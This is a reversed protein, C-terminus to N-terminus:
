RKILKKQEIRGDKDMIQLHYVGGPLHSLDLVTNAPSTIFFDQVFQGLANIIILTYVGDKLGKIQISSSTPNPFISVENTNDLVSVDTIDSESLKVVWADEGGHNGSVDGNTSTTFGSFIYGEDSTQQISFATEVDSGGLCKQWQIAGANDLKVVWVDNGGHNGAVDGDTSTTPGVVIYGGDTTQQIFNGSDSGTGGLCKQWQIAGANDLKVVWADYDGHNGAVDGDNSKTYGAVIYGADPTQQISWAKDLGTGGLCKQWQIAGVHDLKVVWVDYDGHNGSIDGDTSTTYGITIYGGDSTQRVSYTYDVGTGGLCKQWQIAGTNDLKVVWGDGDGHIGSVDGDNSYTQGAVIYGGDSTQQISYAYESGTGGLCKQWQIAGANDLKVVWADSVGGHNGSVDGDTSKTYGAIIYGGDSTQQVVNAKDNESGGLSKEWEITASSNLKVVWYDYAGYNVTVDGDNSYTYGAVIYGGDATQQISGAADTSTGGLCKQWQIDPTQAKSQSSFFLGALLYFAITSIKISFISPNLLKTNM